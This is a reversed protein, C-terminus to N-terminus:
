ITRKTIREIYTNKLQTERFIFDRDDPYKDFYSELAVQTHALLESYNNADRFLDLARIILGLSSNFNKNSNEDLHM